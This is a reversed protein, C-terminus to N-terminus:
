KALWSEAVSRRLQVGEVLNEHLQVMALFSKLGESKAKLRWVHLSQSWHDFDGNDIDRLSILCYNTLDSLISPNSSAIERMDELDYRWSFEQRELQWFDLYGSSSLAAHVQGDFGRNTVLFELADNISEVQPAFPRVQELFANTVQAMGDARNPRSEIEAIEEASIPVALSSLEQLLPSGKLQEPTCFDPNAVLQIGAEKYARAVLRSCFQRMGGSGKPTTVSRVADLIAYRTGVVSRAYRIITLREQDTLPKIPRLAYIACDDEYFIKQLNRAHVGDSTSDIVSSNAVYLMAHSIDSKTGTRVSWSRPEQSTTLLIDGPQLQNFDIAKM